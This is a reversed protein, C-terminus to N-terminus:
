ILKLIDSFSDSTIRDRDVWGFDLDWIPLLKECGWLAHFVDESERACLHCVSDQLVKKAAPKGQNAFHKFLGELYLAKDERANKDELHKELVM